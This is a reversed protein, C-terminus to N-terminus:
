DSLYTLRGQHTRPKLGNSYETLTISFIPRDSPQISFPCAPIPYCDLVVWGSTCLGRPNIMSDPSSITDEDGEGWFDRGGKDIGRSLANM